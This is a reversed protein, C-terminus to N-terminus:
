KTENEWESVWNTEPGRLIEFRPVNPQNPQAPIRLLIFYYHQEMGSPGVVAVHAHAITVPLFNTTDPPFIAFRSQPDGWWLDYTPADDRMASFIFPVAVRQGKVPEKIEGIPARIKQMWGQRYFSYDVFVRLRDRTIASTAALMTPRSDGLGNDIGFAFDFLYEPKSQISASAPQQSTVAPSDSQTVKNLAVTRQYLDPGTFYIFALFAAAPWWRAAQQQAWRRLPGEKWWHFSLSAVGLPLGVLLGVIGRVMADEEVVIAHWSAECIPIAVLGCIAGVIVDDITIPKEM